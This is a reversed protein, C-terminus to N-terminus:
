VAPLPIRTLVVEDGAPEVELRTNVLDGRVKVDDLVALFLGVQEAFGLGGDVVNFCVLGAHLEVGAYLGRTGARASPGRFDVGNLTVFTWDAALILPMLEHDKAGQKGLHNVHSAEFGREHASLALAPSLCEDILFRAPM